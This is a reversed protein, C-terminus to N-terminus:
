VFVATKEVSCVVLVTALEKTLVMVLAVAANVVASCDVRCGLVLAVVSNTGNDVGKVVTSVVVTAEVDVLLVVLELVVLELVVSSAIDLPPGGVVCCIEVVIVDPM